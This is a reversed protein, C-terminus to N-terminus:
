IGMRLQKKQEGENENGAREKGRPEITYIHFNIIPVGSYEAVM